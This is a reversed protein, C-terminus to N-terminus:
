QVNKAVEASYDSELGNVDYTSMVMYYTGLPLDTLIVQQASGDPLDVQSTYNGRANGYHIRYGDIESLSLPTGDARTLPARWKLTLSGTPTAGANVRISFAPLSASAKGDSVTIVINGYTGVNGAGPTGSLRGTTASFSAWAPKNAITYALTDADADTASPRFSYASGATVSTAPTGSIVPPHNSSSGTTGSGSSSGGTTSGGSSGGATTGGSSSSSAPYIGIEWLSYGWPTGRQLGMIRVYRTTVPAFSIDDIGGNGNSESFATAWNRADASVQIQYSKGYATEWNLVVRDITYSSGLDVYLWQPDSFLSSWRTSTNGDVTASAETGAMEVSSSVVPRGLALNETPSPASFAPLSLAVLILMLVIRTLVAPVARTTTRHDTVRNTM